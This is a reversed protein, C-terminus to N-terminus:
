INMFTHTINNQSCEIKLYSANPNKDLIADLTIYTTGKFTSIDRTHDHACLVLNVNHSAFIDALAITEETNMGGSPFQSNDTQWFNTHTYVICHRHNNRKQSLIDKLWRLQKSGITGTGTDLCIFLDSFTKGKISFAYTSAGFLTKYDNWQDFYLDHNGLATFIPKQFSPSSVIEKMPILGGDTDTLDGLVLSLITNTDAEASNLSTKFKEVTTAYHIDGSCFITYSDKTTKIEPTPFGIAMSEEFRDNVKSNGLPVFGSFSFRDCSFLITSIAILTIYKKLM